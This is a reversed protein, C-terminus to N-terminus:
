VKQFGSLDIETLQYGTVDGVAVDLATMMANIDAKFYNYNSGLPGVSTVTSLLVLEDDIIVFMPNNSDNGVITEYFSARTADIPEVASVIAQSSETPPVTMIYGDAVLIKEEQDLYAIPIGNIKYQGEGALWLVHAGAVVRYPHLYDRWNSPLIKAFTISAPVDSDLVGIAIDPYSPAYDPHNASALMTRTVVTGDAAIFRFTTGNAIAGHASYAIHRPSILVGARVEEYQSNWPSICTLDLGYAWCATNRVYTPTSHDQTSYIEM